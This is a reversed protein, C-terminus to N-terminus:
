RSLEALVQHIRHLLSPTPPLFNLHLPSNEPNMSKDMNPHTPPKLFPDFDMNLFRAKLIWKLGNYTM